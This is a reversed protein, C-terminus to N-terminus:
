GLKDFSSGMDFVVAEAAPPAMGASPWLVWRAASPKRAREVARTKASAQRGATAIAAEGVPSAASESSAPWWNWYSAPWRNRDSAPRSESKFGAVWRESGRIPAIINRRSPDTLRAGIKPRRLGLLITPDHFPPNPPPPYRRAYRARWLASASGATIWRRAAGLTPSDPGRARTAKLVLSPAQALERWLTRHPLRQSHRPRPHRRRAHSRWDLRAM